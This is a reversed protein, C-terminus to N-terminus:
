SKTKIYDIQPVLPPSWLANPLNVRDVVVLEFFFFISLGVGWWWAAIVRLAVLRVASTEGAIGTDGLGHIQKNAGRIGLCPCLYTPPLYFFFILSVIDV